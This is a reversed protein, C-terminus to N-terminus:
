PHTIMLMQIVAVRTMIGGSTRDGLDLLRLGVAVYRGDGGGVPPLDDGGYQREDRRVALASRYSCRTCPSADYGSGGREWPRPSRRLSARMADLCECLTCPPQVLALPRAVPVDGM